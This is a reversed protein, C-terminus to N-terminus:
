VKLLILAEGLEKWGSFTKKVFKSNEELFMDEMISCNYKPTPQPVDGVYFNHAYMMLIVLHVNM